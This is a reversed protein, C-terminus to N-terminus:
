RLQVANLNLAPNTVGFGNGPNEPKYVLTGAVFGYGPRKLPAGSALVSNKTACGTTVILITSFALCRMFSMNLLKNILSQFYNRYNYM